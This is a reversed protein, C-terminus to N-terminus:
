GKASSGVIADNVPLLAMELVDEAELDANGEAAHAIDDAIGFYGYLKANEGNKAIEAAASSIL